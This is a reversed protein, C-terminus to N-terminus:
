NCRISVTRYWPASPSAVTSTLSSSISAGNCMLSVTGAVGFMVTLRLSETIFPVTAEYGFHAVTFSANATLTGAPVTTLSVALVDSANRYINFYYRGDQTSILILSNDSGATLQAQTTASGSTLSATLLAGNFTLSVSGVVQFAATLTVWHTIYPVRSSYAYVGGSFTTNFVVAPVNSPVDIVLASM